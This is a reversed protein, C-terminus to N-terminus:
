TAGKMAAKAAERMAKGGGTIGDPHKAIGTGALFLAGTGFYRINDPLNSPDLGGSVAPVAANTKGMAAQVTGIRTYAVLVDSPYLGGDQLAAEYM